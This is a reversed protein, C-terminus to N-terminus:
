LSTLQNELAVANLLGSSEGEVVGLLRNSGNGIERVTLGLIPQNFHSVLRNLALLLRSKSYRPLSFGFKADVCCSYCSLANNGHRKTGINWEILSFRTVLSLSFFLPWVSHAPPTKYPTKDLLPCKGSEHM